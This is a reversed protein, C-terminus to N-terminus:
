SASILATLEARDLLREPRKLLSERVYLFGATVQSPDVGALDAWALRYISLQHSAAEFDKGTLVAGTKYDIVDYGGDDTAYVADIRGRLLRGGVVMEFPAEVRVPPREGWGAALFKQQLSALEADDLDDDEAGPLDDPELLPSVGYFQEVWQHFRSGRRAQAVPRSPMPRAIAAAFADPDVAMAVVQSTTLRDPVAVDITRARRRSIEDLLLDTDRQWNAATVADDGSLGGDIDLRGRAEEVLAAVSRRRAMEAPEPMAPWEVDEVGSELLLNVAETDPDDVWEEVMVVSEGLDVVERLFPSAAYFNQRTPGWVYGSLWLTSEARTMAVYALRREEDHTDSRCQDKFDEIDQNGYGLLRPLDEADGRCAFPLVQAGTIWSSRSKGVPFVSEVLGPVAVIDWELGKAAHITMLKVTNADSVAGIDLGDENDGAAKLFALFASLDAEGDLGTFAAAVDLFAHVNALRAEALMADGAEIEVDLGTTRIVETILDVLPQGVLGRLRRTEAAFAALRELAEPSCRSHKGPSEVAELLSPVEVPDVSSTAEQLVHTLGGSVAPEDAVPEAAVGSEEVADPEIPRERALFAARDGLAALDRVGLRWRPGSLLRVAAANATGDALLSLVAVIDSVEPMALLGGLGVVEVPIDRDVMAHHLRPFDARRRSLVAIQKPAKGDSIAAAIKDALWEAEDPATALRAAVIQGQGVKDKTPRLSPIDVQSRGKRELSESLPAAIRNAADLIRGACRFSTMLPLPTIDDIADAFHEGFRSLNSASAGRWGYIAQNPDGVATIAHQGSFLRSLLVRQAVGTDQYEDLVVLGFRAREAAVVEPATAVIECALAVQDGFDIVDLRQKEVQYASVLTLLEDRSYTKAVLEKAKALVKALGDIEDRVRQDHRRVDEATALHDSLDGALAIIYNAVSGTTWPLHTFSATTRTAVRMALQWQVAETLLTAGPERGIRLAHDRVIQAAYSNYTAITPEDEVQEDEGPEPPPLPNRGRLVLLSKRVREALEGAAKNTFTLGLIRAPDLGFHAVAHVVRAAMVMTKGSGAGAIVLQPTLDATIIAMQEPTFDRELLAKLYDGDASVRLPAQNSV